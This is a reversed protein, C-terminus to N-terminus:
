YKKLINSFSNGDLAIVSQNEECDTIIKHLM